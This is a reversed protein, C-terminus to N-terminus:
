VEDKFLLKARTCQRKGGFGAPMEVIFNNKLLARRLSSKCAYTTFLARSGSAKLLFDNLFEEQWLQPSSLGCFADYLFVEFKEEWVTEENLKSDLNWSRVQRAQLLFMKIASIDVYDARFSEFMEAYPLKCQQSSLAELFQLKLEAVPEFSRIRVYNPPIGLRVCEAAVLFENYGLGLGVSVFSRLGQALGERVAWGYIAQTEAYAGQSNHMDEVLNGESWRLTPSGDLTKIVEYQPCM